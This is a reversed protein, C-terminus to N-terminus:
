ETYVKGILEIFSTLIKKFEEKNSIKTKNTLCKFLGITMAIIGTDAEDDEDELLSLVFIEVFSMDKVYSTKIEEPDNTSYKFISEIKYGNSSKEVTYENRGGNFRVKNIVLKDMKKEPLYSLIKDNLEKPLRNILSM